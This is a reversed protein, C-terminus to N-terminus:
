IIRKIQKFHYLLTAFEDNEERAKSIKCLRDVHQSFDSFALLTAQKKKKQFFVTSYGSQGSLWRELANNFRDKRLNFTQFLIEQFTTEHTINM